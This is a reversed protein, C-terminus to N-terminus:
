PSDSRKPRWRKNKFYKGLITRWKETAKTDEDGAAQEKFMVTERPKTGPNKQEKM